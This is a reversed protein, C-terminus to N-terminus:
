LMAWWEGPATTSSEWSPGAPPPPPPASAAPSSILDHLGHTGYLRGNLDDARIEQVSPVPTEAARAAKTKTSALVAAVVTLAAVALVIYVFM